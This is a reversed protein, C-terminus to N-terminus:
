RIREGIRTASRFDFPTSAVDALGTPILTVDVPCYRSAAIMLRHDMVSGSGALNFYDHHSLNLVTPKDTLASYDIRWTNASASL